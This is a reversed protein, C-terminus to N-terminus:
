THFVSLSNAALNARYAFGIGILKTQVFIVFIYIYVSFHDLYLNPLLTSLLFNFREGRESLREMQTSRLHLFFFTVSVSLNGRPKCTTASSSINTCILTLKLHTSLPHRAPSSILCCVARHTLQFGMYSYRTYSSTMYGSLLCFYLTPCMHVFVCPVYLSVCPCM